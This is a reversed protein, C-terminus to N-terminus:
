FFFLSTVLGSFILIWALAMLSFLPVKEGRALERAVLVSAPTRFDKFTQASITTFCRVGALAGGAYMLSSGYNGAVAYEWASALGLISLAFVVIKLLTIKNM